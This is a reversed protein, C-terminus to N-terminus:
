WVAGIFGAIGGVALIAWGVPNSVLGFAVLGGGIVAGIGLGTATGATIGAGRGYEPTVRSEVYDGAYNAVMATGTVAVIPTSASQTLMMYGLGTGAADGLLVGYEGQQYHEYGSYTSTVIMGVGGGVRMFRSGVSMFRLGNSFGNVGNLGYRGYYYAGVGITEIGVTTYAVSRVRQDSIQSAGYLSLLPGGMTFFHGAGRGFSRLRESNRLLGIDQTRAVGGAPIDVPAGNAVSSTRTHMASAGQSTNVNGPQFRHDEFRVTNAGGTSNGRIIHQLEVGHDVHHGVPRTRGAATEADVWDDLLDANDRRIVDTVDSGRPTLREGPVASRNGVGRDTRIRDTYMGIKEADFNNPVELTFGHPNRRALESGAFPAGSTPLSPRRPETREDAGGTSHSRESEPVNQPEPEDQNEVEPEPTTVEPETPPPTDSPEPPPADVPRRRRSGGSRRPRSAPPIVPLPFLPTERQHIEPIGGELPISAYLDTRQTEIAEARLSLIEGTESRDARISISVEYVDSGRVELGRANLREIMGGNPTEERSTSVRPAETFHYRGLLDNIATTADTSQLGNPDVLNIPNNHVYLYLNESDEPGVPDPSLWGGMWHAYYRFGFYYFGTVGDRERGCYRYDKLDIDRRNRGAVFATGGYPFYEEYTIVDGNGDLELSVSGLHNSLQYHIKKQTVDDTELAQSDTQWAHILALNNTGDSIQSTFRKLVETGGRTTRKIECGDLYIKETLEITANAVDIVRQAIKRVRMGDGGYVYYEEDNPKGEASRDIVVAKSINNRYNWKLSRLHPMAICNGNADFHSEPNSIEAGNLDFQPMSRNSTASTWIQTNWTQSAGQHRISKINSALDYQYSRTYREVSAGNNLTIHRTGQGWDAPLGNDRSRDAYDHQLLVQHVRGKAEILQYFADYTFESHASVNLGELVKPNAAAPQQAEDVCHILNGVPDYTYHIDQYLRAVGSTRRARLRNMRFTETDYTYGVEVNNGLLASQRLGKADYTTAKLVEMENLVGDSTSVLVKQVGGGQNFIYKRTTHDPLKQEVPRGLADYAYESAYREAALAVSAPNDWNPETTFQALLQRETKSPIGGPFAVLLEQIGAQDYHKVLAGRLNKEKASTVSADEGYVFRETIQNLGLAGDVRVTLVRGLPDYHTKQHVNRSDWLHITQDLNTHFSWKEGADISKEYLQRGLMDRKYQFAKLGRADTIEAVNGNIDYTHEIKRITGDNNTKIVVIERGLPDLQVSDPTDKHALSRDLAMREPSTPPQFERFVRYLSRDVTDNQDFSQVDWASFKVETFTKNPFDTRHVRGLADYYNQTAVGYRALVADSEFAFASSYFPEFQRVPQVKNNYVIHGTVLWRNSTHALEPVGSADLVVNGDPQRHIAPGDEVKRKSQIIRGFGDQYGLEVQLRTSHDTGGKGNHILNERTLQISTLPKGERLWADCDYFSFTAAEQLFQGPNNLINDFTEDNRRTYDKVLGNGYKHVAGGDGLVTGQYSTVVTVGLADYLVESVNDNPDILRFPEVNNYDIEGRTVNGLPDTIEVVNLFYPDYKYVTAQGAQREVRNLSFFSRAGDFYSVATHQWWYGDKPIYHGEETSSLMSPLVRASYTNTIVKDNFCATEEHHALLVSGTQGLPLVADLASSWFLTRNWSLLRATSAGGHSLPQDFSVAGGILGDFANQTQRYSVLDNIDHALHNIEYDLTEYLTGTRYQNLGDTLAFRHSAATIYDRSQAPLRGPATSRRAYAISVEKEIDGYNNVLLSLHHSIKPDGPNKEYAISLSETQYGYFCSDSSPGKPQLRRICYGTQNIQYPHDEPIGQFDAAYIEQRLIKGALCHYGQAFEESDLADPQEFFQALLLPQLSDGQYYQKSRREDWGFVGNHLWTKVYRPQAHTPDQTDSVNAFLATDYQEVLGFVVFTRENDDYHGDRYKFQTEFRTNTIHDLVVKKDAVTFHHPIKSIWPSDSEKAILYHASSHGYEIQVENGMGNKLSILLRPKVGNTLELYQVANQQFSTLSNSWVLCPTGEGLLDLIVASSINDIYPLGRVTVGEIFKNGSANHWCRLEGNAIYVIDTTGSGDLDYLRIRSADFANDFDIVPANEMLVGQGFHGNGLNPYYVVQGNTIRVQDPLGDGTMDAMFYDLSLKDGLTPAYEGRHSRPKAFEFPKEFGEKGKFPYCIIRDDCEVVLDALGDADIDLLKTHGVQPISKFPKFGSWQERDRNYEYYGAQRGQLSFLNLNGDNDFDGLAYTGLNQSPKQIVTSQKGFEGGGCNQKYYWTAASETLIGPIGEGFLDIWRTQPHNFGEPVNALTNRTVNNFSRGLQPQSYAFSLEPLKKESYVGTLLDKRVGTYSVRALTTGTSEENFDCTFIGTLSSAAALEDFHHYILIRKCLRYTRIEFGPTYISFPDLRSKWERGNQPETNTYPRNELQGYDFVVEYLWKNDVSNPTDALSPRTNGYLIKYPYRQSFGEEKFHKLRSSEYPLAANIDNGDEKKYLYQVSNGLNDYQVELLWTFVKHSKKPDFIKTIGSSDHGYISLVNDKSRTRWHIQGDSKRVWKEFRTFSAEIKLRYYHIYFDATEDVRPKWVSGDKIRQPELISTGNFAYKDKGDYQPLGKTTDVSVFPLGNLNWGIGLASNRSSSSYSLSLTPTLGNRGDPLPVAVVSTARGTSPDVEISHDLQLDQINVKSFNM